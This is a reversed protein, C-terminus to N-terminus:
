KKSFIYTISGIQEEPANPDANFKAKLASVKAANVLKADIISSGKEPCEAKIVNGSKDVWIKVVIKGQINSYYQPLPLSVATRGGLSYGSGGKGCNEEPPVSESLGSPQKEESDDTVDDSKNKRGAFLSNRNIEPQTHSKDNRKVIFVYDDITYRYDSNIAITSTKGNCNADYYNEGGLKKKLKGKVYVYKSVYVKLADEVIMTDPWDARNLKTGNYYVESIYFTDKVITTPKGLQANASMVFVCMVACFLLSKDM